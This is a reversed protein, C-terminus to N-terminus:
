FKMRGNQILIKLYVFSVNM